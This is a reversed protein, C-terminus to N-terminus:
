VIYALPIGNAGCCTRLYSILTEHFRDWEKMSKLKTPDDIGSKNKDCADLERKRNVLKPMEVAMDWDNCNLLVGRM